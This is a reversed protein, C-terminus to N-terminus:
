RGRRSTPAVRQLAVPVEDRTMLRGAGGLATCNRAAARAGLDLCDSFDLGWCLGAAVAGHFADGAGTTDVVRARHAAFRRFRRGDLTLGGRAGLTVVPQGRTARALARLADRPSAYGGAAVFEQSVIAHDVHPLLREVVPSPCHFDGVVRAGAKRARRVARLAQAPFHGDVLLVSCRDIARLDFAPARAELGRRNPVVFRREGTRGDVLVVAVTTHLRRSHRLGRTRVGAARLQAHVFHGDPDDGLGSLAHAECGLAAVQRIANGVMGGAAVRRDRYRLRETCDSLAEVLYCHDVVCLGLGVVRSSVTGEPAAFEDRFSSL